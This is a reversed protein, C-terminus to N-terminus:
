DNSSSDWASGQATESNLRFGHNWLDRCQEFLAKDTLKWARVVLQVQELFGPDHQYRMLLAGLMVKDYATPEALEALMNLAVLDKSRQAFDSM